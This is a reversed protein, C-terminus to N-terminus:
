RVTGVENSGTGHQAVYAAMADSRIAKWLQDCAATDLRVISQGDSSRGLGAVPATMFTIDSSRLGRLSFALSRMAGNSMTDDVSVSDSVTKLLENLRLPNSLTGTSASKAVLAKIFSQQRQVRDLDGHPLGYRQRVFDLAAQGELHNVGAPFTRHSRPDTTTQRVTVDVGGLAKTMGEFGQFDIIALHDVRIDTLKELTQILLPSAGYSYAANVKAMGHGPVAVWSDRPISVVYAKQRAKDIHVLMITDTRQAGPTFNDVGSGDGTTPDQSRSDSGLLLFTQSGKAAVPVTPRTAEQPFAHPVRKVNGAYSNLLLAVGAVAALVLVVLSALTWLVIRRARHPRRHRRQAPDSGGADGTEHTSGSMGPLFHDDDLEAASGSGPLPTM